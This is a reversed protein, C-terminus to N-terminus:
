FIMPSITKTKDTPHQPSLKYKRAYEAFIYTMFFIVIPKIVIWSLDGVAFVSIFYMGSLIFANRTIKILFKLNEKM